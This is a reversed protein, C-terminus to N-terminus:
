NKFIVKANGAEDYVVADVDLTLRDLAKFFADMSPYLPRYDAIIKKAAAADGSLLADLVFLQAKASNVCLREPDAACFDIGHLSGTIGACWFQVGPMVCTVDGFDSSGTDWGDYSFRVRDAGVLDACAKECLRMFAPDHYEPSYGPRDTLEVGAGMALAAGAMARNLKTNERIIAELTKGRVYSEIKMEDPIINVASSVGMMIPHFRIHEDDRFTERLDNAAQLALMAAYQANVGNEPAGGAHSAKGKFRIMKSVFGNMGPSCRFDFPEGPGASAGHVMFALDVGDLLGRRMFEVKGGFYRIIGKKRLGERFTIQIMEEAPVAVLRIKGSLGDLAGPAKLAGAVGLLAASQAHHGCCHAMGNVSGPHNAIDLADLEGFVAVTPGPRGTDIETTFGPVDGAGTLRYGLAEYKEKLYGHAEWETYGTQPHEWLWREAALIEPRRANVNKIIQEQRDTM